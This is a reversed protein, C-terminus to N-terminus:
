RLLALVAAVCSIVGVVGAGVKAAWKVGTVHDFVPKLDKKLESFAETQFDLKTKVVTLDTLIQDLKDEPM